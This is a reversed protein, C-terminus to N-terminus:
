ISWCHYGPPICPVFHHVCDKLVIGEGRGRQRKRGGRGEGEGERRERGRRERGKM